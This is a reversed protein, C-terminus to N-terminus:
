NLIYEDLEPITGQDYKIFCNIKTIVIYEISDENIPKNYNRTRITYSMNINYNNIKNIIINLFLGSYGNIYFGITIFGNNYVM